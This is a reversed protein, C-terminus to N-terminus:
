LSQSAPQAPTYQFLGQNPTAPQAAPAQTAPPPPSAVPPPPVAAPAPQYYTQAPAPQYTQAPAQYYPQPTPAPQVYVPQPAPVVYVRPPPAYYVPPPPALYVGVGYPRYYPHPHYYVPGGFGISVGVGAMAASSWGLAAVAATLFLIRAKM